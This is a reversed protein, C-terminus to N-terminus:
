SERPPQAMAPDSSSVKGNEVHGAYRRWYQEKGEVTIRLDYWNASGALGFRIGRQSGAAVRVRRRPTGYSADAIQLTVAEEAKVVMELGEPLYRVSLQVRPDAATGGFERFFGNPGHLCVHYEGGAFGALEWGDRLRSGAELGYARTRLEAKERYGKVAYVHFAVGSKAGTAMEVRLEEGEVRADAYHAYPLAVAPRTGPEQRPRRPSAAFSRNDAKAWDQWGTPMAQYQARHITELVEEREAFPLNREQGEGQKAPRFVASMDGCVARRWASINPEEVRKGTRHSLVREMLQLVSTHDFVQSCVYGGRSWPSAVIMPVRYGLGVPGGRAERASRGKRDEELPWYELAANLGPTVKGSEGRAPDPAVFPPVHDFYGDNEDYTLVFITKKWVEPNQTLINMAEALYWAGYWPSGPHDSFNSSPVLWSVAPLKGAKVDARFQFLPDGKPAMMERSKEGDQYRKPALSRYNPDGVNTTFAREHLSRERASMKAAAEDTWKARERRAFALQGKRRMLDRAVNPASENAQATGNIQAAKELEAVESELKEVWGGLYERYSRHQGVHYQDFWELPNDTFNALWDEELETLGTPLSLENQYVRWSIGAAELREPFTTWNATATYTVDSNRVKAPATAEQRPRITGTWLHLRNPTTGTLSSCFNQDCVTFADAMAYYFPLDERTFYGLTLPMGACERRGSPKAVLWRDHNGHNRADIQDTWSHPLSGLWTIRSEKLNLRFPAFTEGKGNSQLWVPRGDPLTVARPDNFGRVGRLAGLAHDFSRNEQMLVVIHEADLYSSGKPPAIAMAREISALLASYQLFERRTKM